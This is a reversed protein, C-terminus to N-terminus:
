HKFQEVEGNMIAPLNHQTFGIRHDTVRNQPHQLNQNKQGTVVAGSAVPPVLKM